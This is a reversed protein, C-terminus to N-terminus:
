DQGDEDKLLSAPIGHAGSIYANRSARVYEGCWMVTEVTPQSSIEGNTRFYPPYRLCKGASIEEDEEWDFNDRNGCDYTYRQFFKCSECMEDNAIHYHSAAYVMHEDTGEDTEMMVIPRESIYGKLRKVIYATEQEYYNIKKRM